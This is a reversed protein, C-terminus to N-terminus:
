GPRTPHGGVESRLRFRCGARHAEEPSFGTVAGAGLSEAMGEVIGHHLACVIEPWQGAAEQMPCHRLVVDVGTTDEECVPDFGLRSLERVVGVEPSDGVVPAVRLAAALGAARGVERPPTGRELMELLMLSLQEYPAPGAWRTAAEVSTRYLLHPRGPGTSRETTEVLLGTDRLENLHQRVATHHLGVEAVLEKVPMPRGADSIIRFLQYRTPDGLARAQRQLVLEDDPLGV